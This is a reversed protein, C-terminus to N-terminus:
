IGALSRMGSLMSTGAMEVMHWSVYLSCNMLFCAHMSTVEVTDEDDIMKKCPRHNLSQALKAGSGRGLCVQM